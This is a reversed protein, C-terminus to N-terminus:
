LIKLLVEMGKKWAAAETERLEGWSDTVEKPSVICKFNPM